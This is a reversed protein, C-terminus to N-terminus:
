IKKMKSFEGGVKDYIELVEKTDRANQSGGYKRTADTKGDGKKAKKSGVGSIGTVADVADSVELWPIDDEAFLRSSKRILSQDGTSGGDNM